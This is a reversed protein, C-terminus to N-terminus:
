RVPPVRKAKSILLYADRATDLLDIRGANM